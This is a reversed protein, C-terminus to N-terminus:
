ASTRCDRVSCVGENIIVDSPSTHNAFFVFEGENVYLDSRSKHGAFLINVGEKDVGDYRPTHSAIFVCDRM